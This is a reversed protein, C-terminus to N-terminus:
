VIVVFKAIMVRKTFNRFADINGIIEYLQDQTVAMKMNDNSGDKRPFVNATALFRIGRQDCYKKLNKYELYTDRFLITKIEVNINRDVLKNINDLANKLSGKVGTINDHVSENLSFITCSICDIYLNALKDIDRVSLLSVNTFLQLNFGMKRASTLIEFIDNRLFMEGGTFTIEFTNMQRLEKLVDIVQNYSLGYSDHKPIYCHKCRWNCATLLEITAYMLTKNIKAVDYISNENKKDM